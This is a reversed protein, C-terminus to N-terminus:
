GPELGQSEAGPDGAHDDAPPTGLAVVILAAVGGITLLVGGVVPLVLELGFGILCILSCVALATWWEELYPGSQRASPASLVTGLVLLALGAGALPLWIPSLLALAAGAGATLQGFAGASLGRSTSSL